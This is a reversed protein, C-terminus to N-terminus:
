DRAIAMLHLLYSALPLAFVAGFFDAGTVHGVLYFSLTWGAFVLIGAFLLMKMFLAKDLPLSSIRQKWGSNNGQMAVSFQESFLTQLLGFNLFMLALLILGWESLTPVVPDIPDTTPDGCDETVTVSSTSTCGNGDTFTLTYEGPADVVAGSTAASSVTTIPTTFDVQTVSTVPGAEAGIYFDECFEFLLQGPIPVFPVFHASIGIANLEAVLQAKGNIPYNLPLVNGGAVIEILQNSQTGDPYIAIGDTFCYPFQYAPAFTGPGTWAYTGAPSGEVSLQATGEECSIETANVTLIPGEEQGITITQTSVCGDTGTCTLTYEGAADVTANPMNATSGDALIVNIDVITISSVTGAEPGIFFDICGGEGFPEGPQPVFPEYHANIGIANLETVFQDPSNIPYNLPLINGDAIVEILQNTQTGDPYIIVADTFCYLFTTADEFTGPGTWQYSGAGGNILSLQAPGGDCPVDTGFLELEPGEGQGVTVTQTSVCGNSGTFILTYEGPANVLPNPMNSTSSESLNVNIDLITISTVVGAETGIFFEQCFGEDIVGFPAVYPIFHASVGIANLEAVLETAGDIPYNLPLVNGGAIVEILQNSQTGDPYLVIGDTFCYDFTVAPAFTGPGSWQYSGSLNDVTSLQATGDECSLDTATLEIPEGDELGVTVTETSTCGNPGTYTLTYDGPNYVVPNPTLASSVITVDSGGGVVTVSTIEGAEAGIFFENCFGFPFEGPPFVAPDYHSSIGLASLEAVLVDSGIIPYNLPLVVGDAIIEILQNTETGDPFIVIADGFCFNFRYAPDFLGPGTWSYAGPMAGLTEIQAKGPGCPLDAATLELAVGDFDGLVNLTEVLSGDVDSVTVSYMGVETTIPNQESSTFGNPGTWAYTFPATGGNVDVYIQQEPYSCTFPFAFTSISVIEAHLNLSCLLCSLLATLLSKM